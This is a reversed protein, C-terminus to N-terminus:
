KTLNLYFEHTSLEADHMFSEFISTIYDEKELFVTPAENLKHPFTFRAGVGACMKILGEHKKYHSLWKIERMRRIQEIFKPHFHPTLDSEFAYFEALYSDLNSSHYRQWYKALLHDFFLDIAVGSVKPLLPYLEHLLEKVAPHTDITHDIFRHLRVGAQISKPSNEFSNGKIYEGHLNAHM